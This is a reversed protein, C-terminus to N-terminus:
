NLNCVVLVNQSIELKIVLSSISSSFDVERLIDLNGLGSIVQFDSGFEM